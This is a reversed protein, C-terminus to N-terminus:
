LGDYVLPTGTASIVVVRATKVGQADSIFLTVSQSAGDPRWTIDVPLTTNNPVSGGPTIRSETVIGLVSVNRPAVVTAVLDWTSPQAFGTTASQYHIVRDEEVTILQWTRSTTARMQATEMLTAVGDAFGRASKAYSSPRIAFAAAAAIMGIIAIVVMLEIVTFGGARAGPARTM